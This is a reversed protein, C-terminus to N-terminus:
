HGNISVFQRTTKWNLSRSQYVKEPGRGIRWKIKAQQRPGGCKVSHGNKVFNTEIYLM